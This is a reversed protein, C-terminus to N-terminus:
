GRWVNVVVVVVIMSTTTTTTSSVDGDADLNDVAAFVKNGVDKEM